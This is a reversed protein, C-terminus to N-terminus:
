CSLIHRAGRRTPPIGWWSVRGAMTIFGPILRWDPVEAYNTFYKSVERRGSLRHRNSSKLSSKRQLCRGFRTRFDHIGNFRDVYAALLLHEPGALATPRLEGM